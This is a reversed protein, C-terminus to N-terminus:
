ISICNQDLIELIDKHVNKNIIKFSFFIHIIYIYIWKENTEEEHMM